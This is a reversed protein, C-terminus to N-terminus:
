GSPRALSARPSGEEFMAAYADEVDRGTRILWSFLLDDAYSTNCRSIDLVQGDHIDKLVWGCYLAWLIPALGCGRKLGQRMGVTRTQGEHNIRIKAQQHLLLILEILESPVQAERM